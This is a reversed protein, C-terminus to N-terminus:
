ASAARREAERKVDALDAALQKRITGTLVLALPTMLRAM